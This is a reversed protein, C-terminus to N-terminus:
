NVSPLEGGIAARAITQPSSATSLYASAGLFHAFRESKASPRNGLLVIRLKPQELLMKKCTLWGSELKNGETSLISAVTQRHRSLQRAEKATKATHVDFGHALFLSKLETANSLGELSIVIRPAPSVLQTANSENIGSLVPQQLM